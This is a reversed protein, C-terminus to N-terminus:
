LTIVKIINRHLGFIQISDTLMFKGTPVGVCKGHCSNWEGWESLICDTSCSKLCTDEEHLDLIKKEKNTLPFEIQSNNFCKEKPEFGIEDSTQFKNYNITNFNTSSFKSPIKRELYNNGVITCSVNRRAMGIGCVAGKLLLILVIHIIANHQSSLYLTYRTSFIGM